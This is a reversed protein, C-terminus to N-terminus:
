LFIASIQFLDSATELYWGRQIWFSKAFPLASGSNRQNFQQTDNDCWKSCTAQSSHHHNECFHSQFFYDLIKRRKVHNAVVVSVGILTPTWLEFLNKPRCLSAWYFLSLHYKNWLQTSYAKTSEQRHHHTSVPSAASLVPKISKKWVFITFLFNILWLAIAIPFCYILKTLSLVKTCEWCYFTLVLWLLIHLTANWTM